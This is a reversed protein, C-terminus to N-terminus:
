DLCISAPSPDTWRLMPPVIFRVEVLVNVDAYHEHINERVTPVTQGKVATLKGLNVM